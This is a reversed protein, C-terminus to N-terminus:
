IRPYILMDNDYDDNDTRLVCWYIRPLDVHSANTLAAVGKSVPPGDPKWEQYWFRFRCYM